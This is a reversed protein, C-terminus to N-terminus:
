SVPRARPRTPTLAVATARADGVVSQLLALEGAVRGAGDRMGLVLTAIEREMEEVRSLIGHAVRAVAAVHARAQEGAEGRAREVEARAEDRLAQADAEAARKMEAVSKEAAEVIFRVQDSASEAVPTAAQAAAAEARAQAERAATALTGYEDALMRM